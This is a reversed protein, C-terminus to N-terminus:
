LRAPMRTAGDLRITEGNLMPNEICYRVCSAFEEAKGPRNPFEFAKTLSQRVKDSMQATMNSEFFSPAVSMCRIGRPSLDRALVLTMARIAGKSAAYSVQGVQGDFAASSSVLVMVGREGNDETPTNSNMHPLTLRLLDLVGRLNINLVFDIKAMSIPNNHRDILLGPLSVGAAPVVGGIAKGTQKVWEVISAVAKELSATDTVDVEYFKTRSGLEKQVKAGNEAHFDLIAIYGGHSHLDKVTALGLGSAGGSVIFTRDKVHM